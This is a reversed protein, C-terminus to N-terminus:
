FKLAFIPTLVLRIQLFFRFFHMEINQAASEANNKTFKLYKKLNYAMAATLMGKNANAIGRTNIPYKPEFHAVQKPINTGPM